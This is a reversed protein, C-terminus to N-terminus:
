RIIQGAENMHYPSQDMSLFDLEFGFILMAMIRVRIVNCFFIRLQTELVLKPVKFKRNPRRFSVRYELQWEKLWHSTIKPPNPKVGAALSAAVYDQM